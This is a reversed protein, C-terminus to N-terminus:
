TWDFPELRDLGITQSRTSLYLFSAGESAHQHSSTHEGGNGAESLLIGEDDGDAQGHGHHTRTGRSRKVEAGRKTTSSKSSGGGSGDEVEDMAESRLAPSQEKIALSQDALWRARTRHRAFVAFSVAFAFILLSLAGDSLHSPENLQPATSLATAPGASQGSSTDTMRSLAVPPPPSGSVPLDGGSQPTAAQAAAQAAAAM